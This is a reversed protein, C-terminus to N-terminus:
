VAGSSALAKATNGFVRYDHGLCLLGLTQGVKDGSKQGYTLLVDANHMDDVPNTESTTLGSFALYFRASDNKEAAIRPLLDEMRQARIAPCALLLLISALPPLFARTAM